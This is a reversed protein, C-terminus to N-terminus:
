FIDFAILHVRPRSGWRQETNCACKNRWKTEKELYKAEELLYPDSPTADEADSPDEAPELKPSKKPSAPRPELKPSKKPSATRRGCGVKTSAVLDEVDANSRSYTIHYAM